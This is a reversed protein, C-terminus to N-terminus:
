TTSTNRNVTSMHWARLETLQAPSPEQGFALDDGWAPLYQGMEAIRARYQKPTDCGWSPALCGTPVHTIALGADGRHLAWVGCRALTRVRERGDPNEPTPRVSVYHPM